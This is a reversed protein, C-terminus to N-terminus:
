NATITIVLPVAYVQGSTMTVACVVSYAKGATGGGILASATLQSTAQGTITLTADPPNVQTWTASTVADAGAAPPAEPTWTISGDVVTGTTPWAPEVEGTQGAANAKYVYGTQGPDNPRMVGNAPVFSNPQWFPAAQGSVDILRLRTSGVVQSLQVITTSDTVTIDTM